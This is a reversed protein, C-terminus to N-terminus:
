EPMNHLTIPLGTFVGACTPPIRHAAARACQLQGWLMSFAASTCLRSQPVGCPRAAAAVHPLTAGVARHRAHAPRKNGWATLM